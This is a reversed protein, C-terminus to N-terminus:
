LSLTLALTLRSSFSDLTLAMARARV